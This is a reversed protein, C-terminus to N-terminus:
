LSALTKQSAHSITGDEVELEDLMALLQEDDIVIEPKNNNNCVNIPKATEKGGMLNCLEIELEEEDHSTVVEATNSSMVDQIERHQDLTERVDALVEDVNDYKLGSDNLVKQLTKTGIKYADLVVGNNQAEEVNSLLTEINHLALSRREHNKELLRRKRLYTKALQRKNEKVYQRAKDDNVKIEEELSELQKMLSAQTMELNHVALDAESIILSENEDAPIKILHVRQTKKEIKFELAVQRRAQLTLLCLDLFDEHIRVQCSTCLTKFAELHLLKGRNKDLVKTEMESCIIRLVDLHIWEVFSEALADKAIILHKLKLWSRSLPRKVFSTLFWGSWTNLPDYEYETRLRIQKQQAMEAIVVDLCAPIQEGRMFQLQLERLSFNAKGLYTCYQNILDMWFIMKSDYAEIDWHRTHFNAFLLRIKDRDRWVPPFKFEENNADMVDNRLSM